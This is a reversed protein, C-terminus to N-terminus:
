TNGRLLSAQVPGWLSQLWRRPRQPSVALQVAASHSFLLALSRVPASAGASSHTDVAVITRETAATRKEESKVFGCLGLGPSNNQCCVM